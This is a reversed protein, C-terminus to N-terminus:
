SFVDVLSMRRMCTMLVPAFSSIIPRSCKDSQLKPSILVIYRIRRRAELSILEQAAPTIVSVQRSWYITVPNILSRFRYDERMM